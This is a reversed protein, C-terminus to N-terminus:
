VLYMCKKEGCVRKVFVQLEQIPMSVDRWGGSLVRSQFSGVVPIGLIKTDRIMEEKPCGLDNPFDRLGQPSHPCKLCEGGFLM